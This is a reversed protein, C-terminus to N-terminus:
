MLTLYQTMNRASIPTWRGSGSEATVVEIQHVGIKRQQYHLHSNIYRMTAFFAELASL